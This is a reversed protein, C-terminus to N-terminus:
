ELRSGKIKARFREMTAERCQLWPKVLRPNKADFDVDCRDLAAKTEDRRKKEETAIEVSAEAPIDLASAIASKAGALDFSTERCGGDFLWYRFVIRTGDMIERLAGSNADGEGHSLLFNVWRPKSDSLTPGGVKAITRSVSNSRDLDVPPLKDIRYTPLRADLVELSDNSLSFNAYVTGSPTRYISFSHGSENRTEAKRLEKDTMSDTSVIVRWDAFAIPPALLMLLSLLLANSRSTM